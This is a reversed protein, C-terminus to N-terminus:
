ASPFTVGHRLRRGFLGGLLGGRDREPHRGRPLVDESHEVVPDGFEGVPVRHRTRAGLPPDDARAVSDPVVLLPDVVRLIPAQVREELEPVGTVGVRPAIGQDEPEAVVPAFEAVVATREGLEGSRRCGNQRRHPGPLVLVGIRQQRLLGGGDEVMHVVPGVAPRILEVGPRFGDFAPVVLQLSLAGLDERRRELRHLAGQLLRIGEVQRVADQVLPEGRRARLQRVGDRLELLVGVRPEVLRHRHSGHGTPGRDLLAGHGHRESM